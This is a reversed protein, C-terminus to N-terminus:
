GDSHTRYITLPFLRLCVHLIGEVVNLGFPQREAREKAIGGRTREVQLASRSQGVPSHKLM